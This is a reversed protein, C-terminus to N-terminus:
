LVFGAAQEVDRPSFDTELLFNTRAAQSLVLHSEVNLHKLARLMELGYIVGSAGTIGVVIRKSPDAM